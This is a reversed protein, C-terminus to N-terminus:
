AMEAVLQDYPLGYQALIARATASDGNQHATWAAKLHSCYTRYNEPSLQAKVNSLFGKLMSSAMERKDDPVLQILSLYGEDEPEPATDANLDGWM